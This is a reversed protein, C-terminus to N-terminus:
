SASAGRPILCKTRVPPLLGTGLNRVVETFEPKFNATQHSFDFKYSVREVRALNEILTFFLFSDDRGGQRGWLDIAGM